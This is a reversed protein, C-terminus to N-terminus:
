TVECHVPGKRPHALAWNGRPICFGIELSGIAHRSPTYPLYSPLFSPLFVPMSIHALTADGDNFVPLPLAWNLHEQTEVHAHIRASRNPLRTECRSRDRLSSNSHISHLASSLFNPFQILAADRLIVVPSFLKLVSVSKDTRATRASISNM